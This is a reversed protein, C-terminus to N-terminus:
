KSYLKNSNTAGSQINKNICTVNEHSLQLFPIQGLAFGTMYLKM